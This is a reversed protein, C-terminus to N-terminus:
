AADQKQSLTNFYVMAQTKKDFDNHWRIKGELKSGSNKELTEEHLIAM